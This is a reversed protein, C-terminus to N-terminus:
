ANGGQGGGLVPYNGFDTMLLRNNQEVEATTMSGAYIHSFRGQFM